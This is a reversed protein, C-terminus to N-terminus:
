CDMGYDGRGTARPAAGGAARLRGAGTPRWSVGPQWETLDRSAMRLDAIISAHLM